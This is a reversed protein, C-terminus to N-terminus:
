HQNQQKIAQVEEVSLDFFEAVDEASLGKLLMKMVAQNMRKEAAQVEAQAKQYGQEIGQEIGKQMGKEMWEDPWKKIRESLMAHVEDLDNIANLEDLNLGLQQRPLFVRKLWVVFSRRLSANEPGHLLQAMLGLARIFDDSGRNKEVGFFSNVINDLEPSWNPDKVIQNEDLLLCQLQPCYDRLKGPVPEILDAIQTSATWQPEGNYLVIPLVPPLKKNASLRSNQAAENDPQNKHSRTLEAEQKLLDQYLLGIYIMIRVAMYKDVTSQFELLLYVYLWQDNFRVRWILDDERDRLDDTVYSGSVKELTSFDLQSIWDQKVFGQLLDIVMKKHSFLLKYSQDHAPKSSKAQDPETTM